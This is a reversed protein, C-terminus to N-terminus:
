SPRVKWTVEHSMTIGGTPLSDNHAKTAPFAPPPEKYPRTMDFMTTDMGQPINAHTDVGFSNGTGTGFNGTAGARNPSRDSM